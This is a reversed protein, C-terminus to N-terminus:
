PHGVKNQAQTVLMSMMASMIEFKELFQYLEVQLTRVEM